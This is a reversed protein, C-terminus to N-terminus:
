SVEKHVDAFSASPFVDFALAAIAARQDEVDATAGVRSETWQLEAAILQNVIALREGRSESKGAEAGRVADAESAVNQQIAAANLETALGHLRGHVAALYYLDARNHVGPGVLPILGDRYRTRLENLQLAVFLVGLGLTWGLWRAGCNREAATRYAQAMTWASAIMVITAGAGRWWEIRVDATSPWPQTFQFWVVACILPAFLLVELLSGFASTKINCM